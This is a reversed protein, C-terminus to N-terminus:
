LWMWLRSSWVRRYEKALSFAEVEVEVETESERRAEVEV